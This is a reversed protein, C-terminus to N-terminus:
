LGFPRYFKPGFFINLNEAEWIKAHTNYREREQKFKLRKVVSLPTFILYISFHQNGIKTSEMESEYVM